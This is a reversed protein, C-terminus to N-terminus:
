LVEKIFLKAYEKDTTITRIPSLVEDSNNLFFYQDNISYNRKPFRKHTTFFRFLHILYDVYYGSPIIKFIFIYTIKNIIYIPNLYKIM